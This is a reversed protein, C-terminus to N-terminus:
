REGARELESILRDVEATAFVCDKYLEEEDAFFGVENVYVCTPSYVSEVESDDVPANVFISGEHVFVEYANGIRDRVRQDVNQIDKITIM